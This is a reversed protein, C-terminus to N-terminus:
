SSYYAANEQVYGATLDCGYATAEAAGAGLDVELDVVEAALTARVHADEFQARRGNEVVPVGNISAQV